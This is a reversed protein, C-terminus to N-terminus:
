YCEVQNGLYTAATEALKLEINSFNKGREKSAIIVTGIINGGASIPSVIQASYKCEDESDACLTIISELGEGFALTKQAEMVKDLDASVKKNIFIKEPVGSVSIINDRDCILIINGITQELSKCYNNAFDRLERIPSYKKLMINGERNTFIDVPDGVRIRLAKRLEKPIVVRGLNDIRRVLGTARM